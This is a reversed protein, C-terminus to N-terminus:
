RREILAFSLHGECVKEEKQNQATCKAFYFVGKQKEIEATVIVTDGTKVVNKFRVKDIGTYYTLKGKVAEGILLGCTQAMIECLIVGPVVPNDPFHGQLFWEDGRITYKGITHNEAVTVEDLLLMPERHPLYTKIEARDM